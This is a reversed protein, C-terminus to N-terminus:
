SSNDGNYLVYFFIAIYILMFLAENVIEKFIM